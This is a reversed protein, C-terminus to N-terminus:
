QGKPPTPQGLTFVVHGYTILNSQDLDIVQLFSHTFSAVYAFRYRKVNLESLPSRTDAAVPTRTAIDHAVQDLSFPDFALAFPGTGTYIITEPAATPTALSDPDYVFISNTDFCVVFVRVKYLGDPGVVPAVFVKSPGDTLAVNGNLVLLDPNYTGDPQVQGITGVILSPPTRNAIFVRSPLVACAAKDSDTQAAEECLLRQSPDIAIGRSDTGVSNVTIPFAAERTLFPRHLTSGDDDYYRLLDVEASNRTTELFAPRVCGPQDGVRECPIVARPDHPIAAIGVGGTPLGDVVFQMIPDTTQRNPDFEDGLGTSLLSTKTDTESTVALAAGDQTQAIGFPEGPMTAGRTNGPANPDNGTQHLSDCRGDVLVGCNLDFPSPSSFTAPTANPDADDTVDAWTVTASGGVPAFLRRFPLPPACTFGQPCAPTVSLQLDTAFAGLIVSAKQYQVSDVPPACAEGLQVGQGNSSPPPPANQCGATWMFGNLFPIHGVASTAVMLCQPDSDAPCMMLNAEILAATDARIQFLNYSQLTGGSWQLDFDSNIVYLVNASTSVALGTPFYFASTPPATGGGAGYCATGLGGAVITVLALRAARL